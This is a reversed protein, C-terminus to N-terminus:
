CCALDNYVGELGNATRYHLEYVCEGVEVIACELTAVFRSTEIKTGEGAPM